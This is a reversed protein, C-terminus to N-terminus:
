FRKRKKTKTKKKIKIKLLLNKMLPQLIKLRQQIKEKLLSTDLQQGVDNKNIVAITKNKNIKNILYTDDVTLPCSGDFVAIVLESSSIMKEAMEVGIGEIIDNTDHIGATDSLRM